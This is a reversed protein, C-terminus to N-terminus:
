ACVYLYWSELSILSRPGWCVRELHTAPKNFNVLELIGADSPLVAILNMTGIVGLTKWAALEPKAPDSSRICIIFDMESYVRLGLLHSNHLTVTEVAWMKQGTM